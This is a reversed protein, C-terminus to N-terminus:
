GRGAELPRWASFRREVLDGLWYLFLSLLVTAILPSEYQATLLQNSYYAMMGGLGTSSTIMEVAVTTVIARGIAIKFGGALFPVTGPLMIKVFIERERGGFVRAVDILASEVSKVGSQANIAIPFVSSLFVVVARMADNIGFALIFLPFLAIAPVSYLIRVVIELLSEVVRYRGMLIGLPAGVIFASGLGVLFTLATQRFNGPLEGDRLQHVLAVSTKTPTSLFIPNLHSGVLQWVILIVAISLWPYVKWQLSSWRDRWTTRVLELSPLQETTPNAMTM